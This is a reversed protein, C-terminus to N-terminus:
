WRSMAGLNRVDSYGASKLVSAASASRSGSRCYLVIPADKPELERMRRELDSLPINVAGPLHGADFEGPTRVDVLRAGEAVRRHAEERDLDGGRRFMAFVLIALAIAILVTTMLGKKRRLM